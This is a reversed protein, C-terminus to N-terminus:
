KASEEGESEAVKVSCAVTTIYGLDGMSYGTYSIASFEELKDLERAFKSAGFEDNAIAQIIMIGTGDEFYISPVSLDQEAITTIKNYLDYSIKPNTANKDLHKDFESQKLRIDDLEEGLAVSEKLSQKTGEGLLYKTDKGLEVKTVVASAIYGLTIGIVVVTLAIPIGFVVVRSKNKGQETEKYNYRELLNIDKPKLRSM